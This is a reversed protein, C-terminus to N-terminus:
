ERIIPLISPDPKPKSGKEYSYYGKRNIKRSRLVDELIRELTGVVSRLGIRRSAQLACHFPGIPFGFNAIVRDIRFLDIGLNVLLNPGQSYPFFTRNVAFGTCNGVIVPVKKIVKGITMLDIIVQPSTKKHVYPRWFLCWIPLAEIANLVLAVSVDSAVSADGTEHVKEFVNIDFGGSFKGRKGTLVVAKADNRRSAEDFKEMLGAIVPIALANIPPNFITVVAVADNGVDMTVPKQSM